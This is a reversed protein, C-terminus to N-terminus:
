GGFAMKGANPVDIVVESSVNSRKILKWLNKGTENERKRTKM